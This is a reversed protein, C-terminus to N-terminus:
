FGFRCTHLCPHDAACHLLILAFGRSFKNPIGRLGHVNAWVAVRKTHEWTRAEDLSALAATILIICHRAFLYTLPSICQRWPYLRTFFARRIAEARNQPSIVLHHIPKANTWHQVTTHIRLLYGSRARSVNFTHM